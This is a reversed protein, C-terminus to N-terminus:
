RFEMHLVDTLDFEVYIHVYTHIYIYMCKYKYTHSQNELFGKFYNCTTSTMSPVFPIRVDEDRPFIRKLRTRASRFSLPSHWNHTFVTSDFSSQSIWMDNIFTRIVSHLLIHLCSAVIHIWIAICHTISSGTVFRWHTSISGSIDTSLGSINRTTLAHSIRELFTDPSRM